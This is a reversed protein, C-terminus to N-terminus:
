VGSTEAPWRTVGGHVRGPENAANDKEAIRSAGILPCCVVFAVPVVSWPDLPGALFRVAIVVAVAIPLVLLPWLSLRNDMTNDTHGIRKERFRRLTTRGRDGRLVRTVTLPKPAIDLHQPPLSLGAV